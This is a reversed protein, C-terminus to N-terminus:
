IKGTNDSQSRFAAVCYQRAYHVTPGTCQQVSLAATTTPHSSGVCSFYSRLSLCVYRRQNIRVQPMAGSSMVPHGMSQQFGAANMSTMTMGAMGHNALSPMMSNMASMNITSMASPNMTMAANMGGNMPSPNAGGGPQTQQGGPSPGPTNGGQQQQQQPSAMLQQQQQPSAMIQQQFVFQIFRFHHDVKFFFIKYFNRFSENFHLYSSEHKFM